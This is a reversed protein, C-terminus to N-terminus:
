TIGCWIFDSITDLVSTPETVYGNTESNVIFYKDKPNTITPLAAILGLSSARSNTSTAVARWNDDNPDTVLEITPAYPERCFAQIYISDKGSMRAAYCHAEM